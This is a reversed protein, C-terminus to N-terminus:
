RSNLKMKEKILIDLQANLIRKHEM